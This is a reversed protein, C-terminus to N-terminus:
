KGKMTQSKKGNGCKSAMTPKVIATLQDQTLILPIYSGGHLEIQKVFARLHNNSGCLLNEYTSIIDTNDALLIQEELDAIDTEEIEAGVQLADMPTKLGKAKCADFYEGLKTSVFDTGENAPTEDEAPDPVDYKDLLHKVAAMHKDESGAITKFIILEHEDSMILYIDRALKEEERMYQLGDSEEGSLSDPDDGCKGKGGCGGGFVPGAVCTNLVAFTMLLTTLTSFIVRNLM